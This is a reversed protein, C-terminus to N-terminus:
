SSKTRPRYTNWLETNETKYGDVMSRSKGYYIRCTFLTSAIFYSYLGYQNKKYLVDGCKKLESFFNMKLSAPTMVIVKKHTKMGEAIAISTCTKGSGLGHYLLLGRYPTYLNLYDRVIRQHILADFGGKTRSECTIEGSTEELEAFYSKFLSVLKQTYMKRNNMYYTPARIILKEIPTQKPLFSDIPRGNIETKPMRGTAIGVAKKPIKKAPGKKPVVDEETADEAVEEEAVKKSIVEEAEEEEKAEKEVEDVDVEELKKEVVEEVPKEEFEEDLKMNYEVIPLRESTDVSDSAFKMKMVVNGLQKRVKDNV